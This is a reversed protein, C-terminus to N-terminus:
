EGESSEPDTSGNEEAPTEAEGGTWIIETTQEAGWPAGSISGEPKDITISELSTCGEFANEEITVCSGPIEIAELATCGYFAYTGIRRLSRITM